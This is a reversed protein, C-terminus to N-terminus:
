PTPLLDRLTEVLRRRDMPRAQTADGKEGEIDM